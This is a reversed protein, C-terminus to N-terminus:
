LTGSGLRSRGCPPPCGPSARPPMRITPSASASGATQAAKGRLSPAMMRASPSATGIAARHPGGALSQRARALTAKAVGEGVDRQSPTLRGQTRAVTDHLPRRSVGAAAGRPMECLSAAAGRPRAGFRYTWASCVRQEVNVALARLSNPGGKTSHTRWVTKSTTKSCSSYYIQVPRRPLPSSDHCGPPSIPPRTQAAAHLPQPPRNDEQAPPPRM